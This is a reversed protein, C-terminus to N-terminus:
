HAYLGHLTEFFFARFVGEWFLHPRPLSDLFAPYLFVTVIKVGGRVGSWVEWWWCMSGGLAGPREGNATVYLGAFNSLSNKSL